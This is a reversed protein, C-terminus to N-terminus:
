MKLDSVLFSNRAKAPSGPPLLSGCCCPGQVAVPAIPGSLARRGVIERAIGDFFGDIGLSKLEPAQALCFDPNSDRWVRDRVLREAGPRQRSLLSRGKRQHRRSQIQLNLHSSAAVINRGEFGGRV